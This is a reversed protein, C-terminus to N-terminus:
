VTQDTQSSRCRGRTYNDSLASIYEEIWNLVTQLLKKDYYRIHILGMPMKRGSLNVNGKRVYPKSFQTLSIQTVKNWFNKLNEIDQDEYAYLYVRLRSENIGCIQRLFRLFIKIMEPDSNAFDIGDGKKLGEGWYLMIGAIKLYEDETNSRERLSFKPKYKDYNIYNAESPGRRPIDNKIMENYVTWYSLGLKDAVERVTYKEDVYLNKIEKIAM